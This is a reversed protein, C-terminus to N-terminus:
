RLWGYRFPFSAASQLPELDFAVPTVHQVIGRFLVQEEKSFDHFKLRAHRSEILMLSSTEVQCERFEEFTLKVFIFPCWFPVTLDEFEVIRRIFSLRYFQGGSKFFRGPCLSHAIAEHSLM